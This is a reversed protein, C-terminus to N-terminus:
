ATLKDYGYKLWVTAPIVIPVLAWCRGDGKAYFVRIGDIVLVIASLAASLVAAPPQGALTTSSLLQLHHFAAREHRLLAASPQVCLFSVRARLSFSHCGVEVNGGKCFVYLHAV